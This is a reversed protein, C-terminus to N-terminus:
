STATTTTPRSPRSTPAARAASPSSRTTARRARAATTRPRRARAASPRPPPRPRSRPSSRRRAAAAAAPRRARAADVEPARGRRGRAHPVPRAGQRHRLARADRAAGPRPLRRRPVARDPQDPAGRHGHGGHGRPAAGQLPRGLERAPSGPPAPVSTLPMGIHQEWSEDVGALNKPVRRFRDFDDWRPHARLRHRTAQDRRRRPAAHHARPLQRPPDAGVPQHGLRLRDDRRPQAGAGRRDVEDALRTVWDLPIVEETM